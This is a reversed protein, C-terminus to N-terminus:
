DSQQFYYLTNHWFSILLISHYGLFGQFALLGGEWGVLLGFHLRILLCCLDNLLVFYRTIGLFYCLLYWIIFFLFLLFRLYLISGFFYLIWTLNLNTIILFLFTFRTQGWLSFFLITSPFIFILITSFFSVSIAFIISIL